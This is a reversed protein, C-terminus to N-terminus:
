ILLLTLDIPPAVCISGGSFCRGASQGGLHGILPDHVDAALPQGRNSTQL